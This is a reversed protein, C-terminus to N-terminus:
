EISELYFWTIFTGEYKICLVSLTLVHYICIFCLPDQHLRHSAPSDPFEFCFCPCIAIAKCVFMLCVKGTCNLDGKCISVSDLTTEIVSSEIVFMELYLPNNFSEM